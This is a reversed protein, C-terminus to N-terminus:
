ESHTSKQDRRSILSEMMGFSLGILFSSVMFTLENDTTIGFQHLTGFIGVVGMVYFFMVARRSSGAAVRQFLPIPFIGMGFAGTYLFMQASTLDVVLPVM